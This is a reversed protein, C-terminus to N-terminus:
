TTGCFVFVVNPPNLGAPRVSEITKLQVEAKQRLDEKSECVFALRYKFPERRCSSTYAISKSSDVYTDKLCNIFHQLSNTLGGNDLASLFVIYKDKTDDDTEQVDEVPFQKIIAHSNTGGFGFSNVCSMRTGDNLTPWDEVAISVAMNYKPFDIKPKPRWFHLSRVTKGHKMMLLVKVIGAVGAAHAEIYQVLDPSVNNKEYVKQLLETQMQISPATIPTMTRGDQNCGTAITAWIKNGDARADKLTKLVIVGGGEGRIYGDATDSFAQGIPSVMRAKSLPILIDPYLTSNVVGCIAM